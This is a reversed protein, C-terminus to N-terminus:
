HPWHLGRSVTSVYTTRSVVWLAPDFGARAVVSVSTPAELAYPRPPLRRHLLRSEWAPQHLRHTLAVGM